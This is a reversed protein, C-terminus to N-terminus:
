KVYATRPSWKGPKWLLSYYWTQAVHYLHAIGHGRNLRGLLSERLFSMSKNAMSIKCDNKELIGMIDITYANCGNSSHLIYIGEVYTWEYEVQTTALCHARYQISIFNWYSTAFIWILKDRSLIKLEKPLKTLECFYVISWYWDCLISCMM